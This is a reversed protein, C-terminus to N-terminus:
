KNVKKLAGLEMDVQNFTVKLAPYSYYYYSAKDFDYDPDEKDTIMDPHREFGIVLSAEQNSMPEGALYLGEMDLCYANDALKQGEKGEQKTYYELNEAQKESTCKKVIIPEGFFDEWACDNDQKKCPLMQYAVLKGM